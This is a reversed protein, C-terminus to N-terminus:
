YSGNENLEDDGYIGAGGDHWRAGPEGSAVLISEKAQLEVSRCWPRVYQTKASIQNTKNM